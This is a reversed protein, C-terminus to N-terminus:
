SLLCLCSEDLNELWKKVRERHLKKLLPPLFRWIRPNAAFQDSKNDTQQLCDRSSAAQKQNGDHVQQEDISINTQTDAVNHDGNKDETVQCRQEPECTPAKSRQAESLLISDTSASKELRKQKHVDADTSSSRNKSVFRAQAVNGGCSSEALSARIAQRLSSRM